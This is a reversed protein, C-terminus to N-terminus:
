KTKMRFYNGAEIDDDLMRQAESGNWQPEGRSNHTTPPYNWIDNTLTQRADSAQSRDNAFIKRLGTLRSAFTSSYEMSSIKFSRVTDKYKNHIARSGMYPTVRCATIEDFLFQRAMHDVHWTLPKKKSNRMPMMSDLSQHTVATTTISYALIISLPTTKAHVTFVVVVVIRISDATFADLVVAQTWNWIKNFKSNLQESRNQLLRM